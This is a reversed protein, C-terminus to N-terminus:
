LGQDVAKAIRSHQHHGTRDSAHDKAHGGLM